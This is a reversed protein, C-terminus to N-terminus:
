NHHYSEHNLITLARYLQELFFVRVMQHSFTMKSLSLVIKAKNKTAEDVGFPGGVLFVISKLGSSFQKGLFVSFEVSTMEKGNEDLLILFDNPALASLIKSAEKLKVEQITLSSMNKLVPIVITEFSIYRKIRNEFESTGERIYGDDTKGLLLLKVKMRYYTQYGLQLTNNYSSTKVEKKLLNALCVNIL